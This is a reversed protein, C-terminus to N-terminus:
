EAETTGVAGSLLDQCGEPLTGSHTAIVRARAMGVEKSTITDPPDISFGSGPTQSTIRESQVELEDYLIFPPTELSINSPM